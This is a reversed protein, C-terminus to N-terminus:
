NNERLSCLGFTLGQPDMVVAMVDGDPLTSPPVIVKAGLKVARETHEAVNAVAIFLQAFPKETPPGPWVGGDFENSGSKLERYGMANDQSVTWEFLSRYFNTTAGADPSIIQWRVVPNPM